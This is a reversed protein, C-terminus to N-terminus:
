LYHAIMLIYCITKPIMFMGLKPNKKAGLVVILYFIFSLIILIGVYIEKYYFAMIAIIIGMITFPINRIISWKKNGEKQYWNNQPLLCLIIRTIALLSLVFPVLDGKSPVLIIFVHAIVVIVNSFEKMFPFALLYALFIYFITMTISSIKNGLGLFFESDKYDGKLNKKIRPILHFADGIGLILTMTLLYYNSDRIFIIAAVLIFFLYLIMFCSEGIEKGNLKKQM